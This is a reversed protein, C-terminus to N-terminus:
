RRDDAVSSRRRPPVSRDIPALRSPSSLVTSPPRKAKAGPPDALPSRSADARGARPRPTPPRPPTAGRADRHARAVAAPQLTPAGSPKADAPTPPLVLPDEERGQALASHIIYEVKEPAAVVKRLQAADEEHQRGEDM